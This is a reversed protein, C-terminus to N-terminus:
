PSLQELGSISGMWGALSVQSVYQQRWRADVQARRGMEAIHGVCHGSLLAASLEAPAAQQQEKMLVFTRLWALAARGVEWDALPRAVAVNFAYEPLGQSDSLVRALVRRTFPVQSDLSVAVIAFRGEPHAQLQARAWHAATQWESQATGCVVRSLAAVRAAPERLVALAVGRAILATCLVGMRPSIETFGALVINAPLELGAEIHQILRTVALNPDLADLAHLRSHYGDRWRLFSAHEDNVVTEDVLIHWEDILQAAQMAGAAAQTVDLLVREKELTEIAEAWVTQAAFQDLLLTHELLGDQFGARDLQQVLWGSWPVVAPIESVQQAQAAQQRALSQIVRRALRNNVTIVTTDHPDRERLEAYDILPLDSLNQM